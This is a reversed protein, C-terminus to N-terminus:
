GLRYTARLSKLASHMDPSSKMFVEDWLRCLDKKDKASMFMVTMSFRGVKTLNELIQVAFSADDPFLLELCRIIEVLMTAGLSDKFVGPLSSPDMVKMLRSQAELNGDFGKWLSEFEYATKPAAFNRVAAMAVTAAARAAANQIAAAEVLKKEYLKAQEAAKAKAQPSATVPRGAGNAQVIPVKPRTDAGFSEMDGALDANNIKTSSSTPGAPKHVPKPSEEIASSKAAVPVQPSTKAVEKVIIPVKKESPKNGTRKEYTERAEMYQRKLHTNEPELRFAFEFDEVAMLYKQLERRATGRRAYAKTYRDDLSIAETCDEEAEKFRNLKLAAMARNAYAVATPQLAISRSYCEFARVYKGEKFYENGLEKESTADPIGEDYGLSGPLRNMAGIGRGFLKGPEMTQEKSIAEATRKREVTKSGGQSGRVPPIVKDQVKKQGLDEGDEDEEDIEKLAADVDFKDWKDRFYDYTHSAATTGPKSAPVQTKETKKSGSVTIPDVKGNSKEKCIEQSGKGEVHAAASSNRRPNPIVDNGRTAQENRLNKEKEKVSKEWGKLDKLFDHLELTNERIQKQVDM